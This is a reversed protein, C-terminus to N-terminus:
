IKGLQITASVSRGFCNIAFLNATHTTFPRLTVNFPSALIINSHQIVPDPSVILEYYQPRNNEAGSSLSFTDWEFMVITSDLSIQYQRTSRFGTPELPAIIIIIANLSINSEHNGVM